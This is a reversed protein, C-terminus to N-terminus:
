FLIKKLGDDIMMNPSTIYKKKFWEYEYETNHIKNKDIINKFDEISDVIKYEDQYPTRYFTFGTIYLQKYEARSMLYLAAFGTTPRYGGLDKLIEAYMFKDICSIKLEGKSNAIFKNLVGNFNRGYLPFVVKKVGKQIWEVPKIEGCGNLPDEDLGSFLVDTKNGLFAAQEIYRDISRNIRIVIDFSDIYSGNKKELATAAPGVIAITKNKYDSFRFNEVTSRNYLLALVKIKLSDSKKKCYIIVSKFM